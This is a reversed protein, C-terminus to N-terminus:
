KNKWIIKVSLANITLYQSFRLGIMLYICFIILYNIKSMGYLGKARRLKKKTVAFFWVSIAFSGLLFILILLRSVIAVTLIIKM